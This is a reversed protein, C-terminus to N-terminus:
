GNDSGKNRFNVGNVERMWSLMSVFVGVQPAYGPRPGLLNLTSDTARGTEPLLLAGFAPSLLATLAASRKLFGRRDSFFDSPRSDREVAAM